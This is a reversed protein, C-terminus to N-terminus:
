SMLISILMCQLHGGTVPLGVQDGSLHLCAQLHCMYVHGAAPATFSGGRDGCQEAPM